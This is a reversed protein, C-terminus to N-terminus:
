SERFADPAIDLRELLRYLSQRSLGLERAVGAVNGAHRALSERVREADLPVSQSPAASQTTAVLSAQADLAAQVTPVLDLCRAEPQAISATTLVNVLGRVNLPWPAGLLAAMLEPSVDRADGERALLARVLVGIDEPRERLPPLRITWRALRAYLDSRLRGDRVAAEVDRNSAAVVRTAVPVETSAGVPRVARAELVRLLRAQVPEDTEAVEDLLVSGEDARQFLGDHARQAGTFAGKVHGFLESELLEGRLSACNVALFPGRRGSLRHLERAVVEKGTGSEGLLLVTHESRAVLEVSAAVETIAASVGVLGSDGGTRPAPPLVGFVIFSSGLRIVDGPALFHDSIPQGNVHTGNKSGRDVVRYGGQDQVLAGHRGSMRADGLPGGPFLPEDRGLLLATRGVLSVQEGARALGGSYVLTLGPHPGALDADDGPSDTLTLTVVAFYCTARVRPFTDARVGPPRGRVHTRPTPSRPGPDLAHSPAAQSAAATPATPHAGPNARVKRLSRPAVPPAGTAGKSGLSVGHKSGEEGTIM